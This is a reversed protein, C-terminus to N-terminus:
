VLTSPSFICRRSIMNSTITSMPILALLCRHFFLNCDSCTPYQMSCSSSHWSANTFSVIAKLAHRVSSRFYRFKVSTLTLMLFCSIAFVDSEFCKPRQQVFSSPCGFFKRWDIDWPNGVLNLWCWAVDDLFSFLVSDKSFFIIRPLFPSMWPFSLHNKQPSRMHVM